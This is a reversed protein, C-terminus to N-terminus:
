AGGEPQITVSGRDPHRPDNSVRIVEDKGPEWYPEVFDREPFWGRRAIRLAKVARVGPVRQVHAELESRDLPTGFTFRDPDFFGPVPRLGRKGTLARVVGAVVDAPYAFPEVCITIVLDLDAYRPALVHVERGAMRFRDLHAALARRQDSPLEDDQRPDATTFATSWSGTWRFRTGAQQVWPLRMAAEDFDGPTVARYTIAKYEDPADRKAQAITEPEVGGATALPNTMAVIFGLSPAYSAWSTGGAPDAFRLSGAPLNGRAGNGLRYTARYWIEQGAAANGRAPMRGFEGDGFRVTAGVGTLYDRHVVEGGVRQFGIARDWTGDDLTFHLDQPESSNTGILTPRYDWPQGILGSPSVVEHLVVEPVSARPEPGLRVLALDELYPWIADTPVVSTPGPGRAPLSHLFAISQNAGVREIAQPLLQTNPGISFNTTRTIGATVPAANGYVHTWELNLEFPTPERWVLRTIDTSTGLAAGLPDIEDTASVLTVLLRREPVDRETIPPETVVFVRDGPTFLAAVHGKVHLSTSGIPLCSGPIPRHVAHPDPLDGDWVHADLKNRDPHVGYGSNKAVHDLATRLDGLEFGIATGDGVAWVPTGAPVQEWGPSSVEMAVWGAAGLGDHLEYDVLRVHRRVSRRQVASGFQAERGVRDQYYSLEDGMAALLEVMMVGVDAELRDQWKPHRLSALELLARRLSWFDRAAPDIRVDDPEPPPCEHPAPACDTNRPCAAKFDVEIERFFPDIRAGALQLRYRGFGGPQSVVVRLVERGDVGPVLAASTVTVEPEEEGTITVDAAGLPLAPTMGSPDHFLFVDLVVQNGHVAVFDIGTIADQGLLANKRDIPPM